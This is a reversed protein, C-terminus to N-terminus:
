GIMAIRPNVETALKTVSRVLIIRGSLFFVIVQSYSQKGLAIDGDSGMLLEM